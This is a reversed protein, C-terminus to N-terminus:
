GLKNQNNFNRVAKLWSEYARLRGRQCAANSPFQTALKEWQIFAIRSIILLHEVNSQM